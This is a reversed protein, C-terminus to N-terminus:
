LNKWSFGAHEGGRDTSRCDDYSAKRDIPRKTLFYDGLICSEDNKKIFMICNVGSKVENLNNFSLSIHKHKYFFGYKCYFETFRIGNEYVRVPRLPKNLTKWRSMALLGFLFPLLICAIPLGIELYGPPYPPPRLLAILFFVVGAAACITYGIHASKFKWNRWKEHEKSLKRWGKLDRYVLKGFTLSIV